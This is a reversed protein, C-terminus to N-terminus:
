FLNVIMILYILCFFGGEFINFVLSGKFIILVVINGNEKVVWYYLVIMKNENGYSM